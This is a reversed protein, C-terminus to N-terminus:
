INRGVEGKEKRIYALDQEILEFLFMDKQANSITSGHCNRLRLNSGCPCKHHGKYEIQAIYKIVDLAQITDELQFHEKYFELIGEAGHSREGAPFVGYRCFYEYTWFFPEVYSKMWKALNFEERFHLRIDTDTALCLTGDQSIHSYNRRVKRGIERVHPLSDSNLRIYIEIDYERCLSIYEPHGRVLIKGAICIGDATQNKVQLHPYTNLLETRQKCCDKSSIVIM